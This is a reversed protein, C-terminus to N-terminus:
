QFQKMVYTGKSFYKTRHDIANMIDHACEHRVLNVNDKSGITVFIARQDKSWWGIFGGPIIAADKYICWHPTPEHNRRDEPDIVAYTEWWIETYWARREPDTIPESGPWLNRPRPTTFYRVLKYVCFGVFGLGALLVIDM